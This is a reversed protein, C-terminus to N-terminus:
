YAVSYDMEGNLVGLIAETHLNGFSEAEGCGEFILLFLTQIRQHTMEFGSLGGQVALSKDTRQNDFYGVICVAQGCRHDYISPDKAM